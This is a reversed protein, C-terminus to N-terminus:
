VYHTQSPVAHKQSERDLSCWTTSSTCRLAPWLTELRKKNTLSALHNRMQWFLDTTQEAFRHRHPCSYHILWDHEEVDEPKMHGLVNQCCICPKTASAGRVGWLQCLAKEDSMVMGIEAQFLFTGSSSYLPIGKSLNFDGDFFTELMLRFLYSYDQQDKSYKSPFAGFFFWGDARSHFFSPLQVITFYWCSLSRSLDPRLVNGPKIEDMYFALQVTTDVSKLHDGIEPHEKTLQSLLAKPDVYHWQYKKGDHMTVEMSRLLQGCRGEALLPDRIQMRLKKRQHTDDHEDDGLLEIYDGFSVNRPLRIFPRSSMNKSALRGFCNKTSPSGEELLQKKTSASGEVSSQVMNFWFVFLLCIVQFSSEHLLAKM